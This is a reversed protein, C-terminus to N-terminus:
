CQSKIFVFREIASLRGGEGGRIFGKGVPLQIELNDCSLVSSAKTEDKELPQFLCTQALSQCCHQCRLAQLIGPLNIHRGSDGPLSCVPNKLFVNQLQETEQDIVKKRLPLQRSDVTYAFIGTLCHFISQPCCESSGPRTTKMITIHTLEKINM